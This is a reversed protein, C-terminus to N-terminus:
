LCDMEVEVQVLLERYGFIVQCSVCHNTYTPIFVRASIYL